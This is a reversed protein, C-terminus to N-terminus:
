NQIAPSVQKADWINSTSFMAENQDLHGGIHEPLDRPNVFHFLKDHYDGGYVKIKALTRKDLWLKVVSWIMSFIKPANIIFMQGLHEPYYRSM